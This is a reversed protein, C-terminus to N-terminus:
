AIKDTWNPLRRRWSSAAGSSKRWRWRRIAWSSASRRGRVARASSCASVPYIGVGKARAAKILALPPIPKIDYRYESDYDDEIVHAYNQRAWALLQHRRGIPMVGGLPYQHSPTVYALRATIGDLRGTQLGEADVTVPVAIAGTALTMM